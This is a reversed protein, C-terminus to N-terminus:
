AATALKRPARIGQRKLYDLARRTGLGDEGDLLSAKYCVDWDLGTYGYKKGFTRMLHDCDDSYTLYLDAYETVLLTTRLADRSEFPEHNAHALARHIEFLSMAVLSDVSQNAYRANFAVKYYRRGEHEVPTLRLLEDGHSAYWGECVLHDGEAQVTPAAHNADAFYYFSTNAYGVVRDLKAGSLEEIEKKTPVRSAPKMDKADGTARLGPDFFLDPGLPGLDASGDHDDDREGLVRPDNPFIYNSRGGYLQKAKMSEALSGYGAYDGLTRLLETYLQRDDHDYASSDTNIEQVGRGRDLVRGATQKGRCSSNIVLKAGRAKDPAADLSTDFVGGLQAHGWYAIIHVHPDALDRTVKTQSEIVVSRLTIDPRGDGSRNPLVKTAIFRHGDVKELKFAREEYWARVEGMFGPMVYQRMELKPEKTGRFWEEYPPTEPLVEGRIRDLVHAVDNPAQVKSGFLAAYMSVKLPWCGEKDMAEIYTALARERISGESSKALSLLGTAAASRELVASKRPKHESAHRTLHGSLSRLASTRQNISAESYPSKGSQILLARSVLGRLAVPAGSRESARAKAHAESHRTKPARAGHEPVHRAHTTTTPRLETAVIELM